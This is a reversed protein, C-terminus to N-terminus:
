ARPDLPLPKARLARLEKERGERRAWAELLLWSVHEGLTHAVVHAVCAADHAFRLVPDPHGECTRGLAIVFVDGSPDNGIGMCRSLDLTRTDVTGAEAPEDGIEAAHEAVMRRVFTTEGAQWRWEPDISATGRALARMEASPTIGIEAAVADIAADDVGPAVNLDVARLALQERLALAGAVDLSPAPFPVPASDSARWGLQALTAALRQGGSGETCRVRELVRAGVAWTAFDPGGFGGALIRALLWQRDDDWVLKGIAEGARKTPEEGVYETLRELALVALKFGADNLPNGKGWAEIQSRSAAALGGDLAAVLVGVGAVGLQRAPRFDHPLPAVKPPRAAIARVLAPSVDQLIRGLRREAGSIWALARALEETRGEAARAKIANRAESDTSARAAHGDGLVSPKRVADALLATLARDLESETDDSM